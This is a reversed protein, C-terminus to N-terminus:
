NSLVACVYDQFNSLERAKHRTSLRWPPTRGSILNPVLQNTFIQIITSKPSDCRILQDATPPEASSGSVHHSAEVTWLILELAIDVGVYNVLTSLALDDLPDNCDYMTPINVYILQERVVYRRRTFFGLMHPLMRPASLGHREVWQSVRFKSIM